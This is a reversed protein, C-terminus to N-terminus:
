KSRKILGSVFLDEFTKAYEVLDINEPLIYRNAGKNAAGYDGTLDKQEFRPKSNKVTLPAPAGSSAPAPVDADAEVTSKDTNTSKPIKVYSDKLVKSLLKVFPPQTGSLIHSAIDMIRRRMVVLHRANEKLAEATFEITVSVPSMSDQTKGRALPPMGTITARTYLKDNGSGFSNRRLLYALAALEFEPSDDSTIAEDTIFNVTGPNDAKPESVSQVSLRSSAKRVRPGRSVWFKARFKKEPSAPITEIIEDYAAL